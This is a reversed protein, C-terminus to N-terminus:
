APREQAAIGPIGPSPCLLLGPVAALPDSYPKVLESLLWCSWSWAFALAFFTALRPYLHVQRTDAHILMDDGNV